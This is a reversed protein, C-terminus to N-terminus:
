NGPLETTGAQRCAPLLHSSLLYLSINTYTRSLKFSLFRYIPIELSGFRLNFSCLEPSVLNVFPLLGKRNTYLSFYELLNSALLLSFYKFDPIPLSNRSSIM